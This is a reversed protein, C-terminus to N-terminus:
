GPLLRAASVDVAPLRAGAVARAIQPTEIRAIIGDGHWRRLWGPPAKGRDQEPLYISWPDHERIYAMIGRLIGRSYENSTEILLVVNPRESM